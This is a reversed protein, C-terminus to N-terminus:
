DANTKVRDKQSLTMLITVFVKALKMDNNICFIIVSNISKQIVTNRYLVIYM